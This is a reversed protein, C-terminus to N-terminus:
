ANENQISKLIEYTTSWRARAVKFAESDEGFVLKANTLASFLEEEQLMLMTIIQQTTM